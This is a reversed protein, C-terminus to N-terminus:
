RFSFFIIVYSTRLSFIFVCSAALLLIQREVRPRRTAKKHGGVVRPSLHWVILSDFKKALSTIASYSYPFYSYSIMYHLLSPLSGCSLTPAGVCVGVWVKYTKLLEMCRERGIPTHPCRCFTRWLWPRLIEPCLLLNGNAAQFHQELALRLRSHYNYNRNNSPGSKNQTRELWYTFHIDFLALEFSTRHNDERSVEFM